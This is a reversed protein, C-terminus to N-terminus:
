RKKIFKFINKNDNYICSDWFHQNQKYRKCFFIKKRENRDWLKWEFIWLQGPVKKLLPFYSVLAFTCQAPTYIFHASVFLPCPTLFLLNRAFTNKSRKKRALSESLSLKIIFDIAKTNHSNFVLLLHHSLNLSM